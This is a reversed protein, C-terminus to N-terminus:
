SSIEYPICIAEPIDQYCDIEITYKSTQPDFEDPILELEITSDEPLRLQEFQVELVGEISAVSVSGTGWESYALYGQEVEVIDRVDVGTGFSTPQIERYLKKDEINVVLISQQKISAVVVQNDKTTCIGWPSDFTTGNPAYIIDTVRWSELDVKLIKGRGYESIWAIKSDNRDLKFDIPRYVVNSGVESQGNDYFGLRTAILEGSSGSYETIHGHNKSGEGFGYYSCVALNGNPLWTARRPNWLKGDAVHGRANPVGITFLLKGTADYVRVCHKGWSAIACKGDPNVEFGMSHAIGENNTLPTQYSVPFVSHTSYDSNFFNLGGYYNIAGLRGSSDLGLGTPRKLKSTKPSVKVGLKKFVELHSSDIRNVRLWTKVTTNGRDIASLREALNTYARDLHNLRDREIAIEQELNKTM